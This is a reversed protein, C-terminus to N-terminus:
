SLRVVMADGRQSGISINEDGVMCMVIRRRAHVNARNRRNIKCALM